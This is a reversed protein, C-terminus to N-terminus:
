SSELFMILLVPRTDPTQSHHARCPRLAPSPQALTTGGHRRGSGGPAWRSLSRPGAPAARCSPPAPCRTKVSDTRGQVRERHQEGDTSVQKTPHESEQQHSTTTYSTSVQLVTIPIRLKWYSVQYIQHRRQQKDTTKEPRKCTLGLTSQEWTQETSEQTCWPRQSKRKPNCSELRTHHRPLPTSHEKKFASSTLRRHSAIGARHCLSRCVQVSCGLELPQSFGSVQVPIVPQRRGASPAKGSITNEEKHRIRGM